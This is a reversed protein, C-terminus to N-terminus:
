ARGVDDYYSKPDPTKISPTVYPKTYSVREVAQGLAERSLGNSRYYSPTDSCESFLSRLSQDLAFADSRPLITDNTFKKSADQADLSRRSGWGAVIRFKRSRSNVDAVLLWGNAEDKKEGGGALSVLWDAQHLLSGWKENTQPMADSRLGYWEGAAKVPVSLRAISYGNEPLLVMNTCDGAWPLRSVNFHYQGANQAFAEAYGMIQVFREVLAQVQMEDGSEFAEQVQKTFGDLDCRMVFGQVTLPDDVSTSPLSVARNAVFGRASLIELTGAVKENAVKTLMPSVMLNVPVWPVDKPRKRYYLWGSEVDGSYVKKAPDNAAPGLSVMSDEPEIGTSIVIARGHTAAYKMSRLSDGVFVRLPGTALAHLALCFDVMEQEREDAGGPFLVHLKDNQVELLQARYEFSLREAERAVGEVFQLYSRAGEEDGAEINLELSYKVYLHYGEVDTYQSDVIDRDFMSLTEIM